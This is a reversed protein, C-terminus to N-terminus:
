GPGRYQDGAVVVDSWRFVFLFPGCNQRSEPFSILFFIGLSIMLGGSIEPTQVDGKALWTYLL